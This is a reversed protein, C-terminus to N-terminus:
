VEVRSSRRSGREEFHRRTQWKKKWESGLLLGCYGLQPDENWNAMTQWCKANESHCWVGWVVRVVVLVGLQGKPVWLWLKTVRLGMLRKQPQKEYEKERGDKILVPSELEYTHLNMEWPGVSCLISTKESLCRKNQYTFAAQIYDLRILVLLAARDRNIHKPERNQNTPQIKFCWRQYVNSHYLSMDISPTELVLANYCNSYLNLKWWPFTKLVSSQFGDYIQCKYIIVLQLDPVPGGLGASILYEKLSPGNGAFCHCKSTHPTWMTWTQRRWFSM